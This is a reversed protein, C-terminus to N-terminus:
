VIALAAYQAECHCTVYMIECVMHDRHKVFKSYPMNKTLMDAQMEDTPIYELEIEKHKVAERIVDMEISFHKSRKHKGGKEALIIASKNDQYIKTTPTVDIIGLDKIFHMIWANEKATQIIAQCEAETSSMCVRETRASQWAVINGNIFLLYAFRSKSKPENAFSADCHAWLAYQTSEGRRYVIAHKQTGKIYRMIWIISRWLKQSPKNQWTACKHLAACIDPRSILALWWLKGIASRIPLEKAKKIDEESTPVDAETIDEMPCPTDKPKAEELNYEKLLTHIYAEQSISLTGKEADRQIHMDLAHTVEGRDDV